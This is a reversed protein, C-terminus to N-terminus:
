SHRSERLIQSLFSTVLLIDFIKKKEILNTKYAHHGNDVDSFQNVDTM